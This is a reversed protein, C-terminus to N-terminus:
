EVKKHRSSLAARAAAHVAPLAWSLTRLVGRGIRRFLSWNLWHVTLWIPVLMCWAPFFDFEHNGLNIARPLRGKRRCPHLDLFRCLDEYTTKRPDVDLRREPPVRRDIQRFFETHREENMDFWECLGLFWHGSFRMASVMRLWGMKYPSQVQNIPPGGTELFETLPRGLLPETLAYLAGWPLAKMGTDITGIVNIWPLFLIAFREMSRHAETYSRWNLVLVKADLSVNFVPWFLREAGDFAVADARCGSIRKALLEPPTNNLVELDDTKQDGVELKGTPPLWLGGHEPMAWYDATLPHWIHLLFEEGHYSREYGLEFLTRSL